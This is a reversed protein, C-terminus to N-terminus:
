GAVATLRRRVEDPGLARAVAFLDPSRTAGTLAVRVVNAIERPPGGLAGPRPALLGHGPRSFM